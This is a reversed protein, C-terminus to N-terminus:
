TRYFFQCFTLASTKFHGSLMNHGHLFVAIDVEIFIGARVQTNLHLHHGVLKQIGTARQNHTRHVSGQKADFIAQTYTAGAQIL